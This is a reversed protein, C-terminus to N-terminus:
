ASGIILRSHLQRRQRVLITAVLAFVGVVIIVAVIVGVATSAATVFRAKNAEMKENFLKPDFEGGAILGPAKGGDLDVFGNNKRGSKTDTNGASPAKPSQGGNFYDHGGFGALGNSSGGSKGPDANAGEVPQLQPDGMAGAGGPPKTSSPSEGIPVPGLANGLTGLAIPGGYAPESWPPLTDYEHEIDSFFRVNSNDPLPGSMQGQILGWLPLFVVLVKM